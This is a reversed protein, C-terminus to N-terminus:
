NKNHDVSIHLQFWFITIGFLKFCIPIVHHVIPRGDYTHTEIHTFKSNLMM